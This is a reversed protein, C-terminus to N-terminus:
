KFLSLFFTTTTPGDNMREIRTGVVDMGKLTKENDGGFSAVM